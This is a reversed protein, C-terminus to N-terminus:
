HQHKRDGSGDRSGGHGGHAGHMFLHMFICLLLILLLPFFGALHALHETFLFYAIIAITAYLVLKIPLGFRTPQSDPQPQNSSGHQHM